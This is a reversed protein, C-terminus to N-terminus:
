ADRDKIRHLNPGALRKAHIACLPTGEDQVPRYVFKARYRCPRGARETWEVRASCWHNDTTRLQPVADPM